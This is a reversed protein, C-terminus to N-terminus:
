LIVWVQNFPINHWESPGKPPSYSISFIYPERKGRGGRNIGSKALLAYGNAKRAVAVLHLLPRAILALCCPCAKKALSPSFLPPLPLPFSLVLCKHQSHCHFSSLSFFFYIEREREGEREWPLLAWGKDFITLSAQNSLSLRYAHCM